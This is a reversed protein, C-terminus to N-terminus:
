IRKANRTRRGGALTRMTRMWSHIQAAEKKSLFVGGPDTREKIGALKRVANVLELRHM